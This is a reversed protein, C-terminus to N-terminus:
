PELICSIENLLVSFKLIKWTSPPMDVLDTSAWGRCKEGDTLFDVSLRIIAFVIATNNSNIGLPSNQGQEKIGLAPSNAAYTLTRLGSKSIQWEVIFFFLVGPFHIDYNLYVLTNKLFFFHNQWSLLGWFQQFSISWLM